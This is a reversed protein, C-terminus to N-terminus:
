ADHRREHFHKREFRGCTGMTILTANSGTSDHQLAVHNRICLNVPLAAYEIEAYQEHPARGHHPVGSVVNM